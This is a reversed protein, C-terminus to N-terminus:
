LSLAATYADLLKPVQHKWSLEAVIRARGIEGMRQRKIPDDLLQLVNEALDIVDNRRAYLSADQASYRGETLDFQVIPKALAMYEMIKIMTSKDNMENAIDPNVCVDATSLLRLMDEDSVRGTFTVYEAVELVRAYAKLRPLQSGGGVLGFQVDHRKRVEVIYKVARLLLDIGEQEGMVGVYGVLFRRGRRLAPQEPYLRVRDLDPGNRVVFIRDPQIGVRREALQRYSENTVIAIDATRFSLRELVLLVRRLIGGAGFKADFLEPSIDHQDFIYRKGFLKFPAAVIFITDPPNCGQIADFGKTFFVRWALLLEWLLANGYEFAYGIIGRAVPGPPHRYIDIGELVERRAPYIDDAPCIISVEYGVDRLAQVQQWVRRDFPVSENEVIILVRRNGAFAM